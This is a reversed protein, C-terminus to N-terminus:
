AAPRVKGKSEEFRRQAAKQEIVAHETDTHREGRQKEPAMAREMALLNPRRRSWFPLTKKEGLM